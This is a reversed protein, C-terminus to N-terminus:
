AAGGTPDFAPGTIEDLTLRIPRPSVTPHARVKARQCMARRERAAQWHRYDLIKATM